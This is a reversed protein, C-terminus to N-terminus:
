IELNQDGLRDPSLEMYGSLNLILVFVCLNALLM